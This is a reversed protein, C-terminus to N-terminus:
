EKATLGFFTLAFVLAFGSVLSMVTYIGPSQYSYVSYGILFFGISLLTTSIKLKLVYHTIVAILVPALMLVLWLIKPDRATHQAADVV